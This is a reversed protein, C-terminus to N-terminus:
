YGFRREYSKHDTFVEILPVVLTEDERRVTYTARMERDIEYRLVGSTSSPILISSIM